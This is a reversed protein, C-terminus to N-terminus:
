AMFQHSPLFEIETLPYAVEHEPNQGPPVLLVELDGVQRKRQLAWALIELVTFWSKKWEVHRKQHEFIKLPKMADHLDVEMVRSWNCSRDKLYYHPSLFHPLDTDFSVAQLNFAEGDEMIF